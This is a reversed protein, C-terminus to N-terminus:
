AGAPDAHREWLVQRALESAYGTGGARAQLAAQGPDGLHRLADASTAAVIWEDDLHAALWLTVDQRRTRGLARASAARVSPAPDDLARLAIAMGEDDLGLTGLSHLSAARVEVRPDAVWGKLAEAAVQGGVLGLIDAVTAADGPRAGAHKVLAPTAVDGFSRLADVIRVRQYRSPEGLRELLAEISQENGIYGLAEVAAARVEEHADDLAASVAPLAARERVLGLARAAEARIWWRPSSLQETWFPILNAAQAGARFQNVVSGTAVALPRLILTEIVPRHTGPAAALAEISAESTGPALLGDVIPRYRDALRKRRRFGIEDVARHLVLHALMACLVLAGAVLFPELVSIFLAAVREIM